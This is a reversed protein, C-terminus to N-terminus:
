SVVSMNFLPEPSGLVVASKPVTLSRTLGNTLNLWLARDSVTASSSDRASSVDYERLLMWGDSALVPTASTAFVQQPQGSRLDMKWVGAQDTWKDTGFAMVGGPPLLQVYLQGDDGWFPAAPTMRGPVEWRRHEVASAGELRYVLLDTPADGRYEATVLYRGDPSVTFLGAYGTALPIPTIAGTRVDLLRVEVFQHQFWLGNGDPTFGLLRGGAAPLERVSGRDYLLVRTGLGEKVLFAARGGTADLAFDGENPSADLLARVGDGESVAHIGLGNM